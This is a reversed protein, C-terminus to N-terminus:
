AYEVYFCNNLISFRMHDKQRYFSLLIFFRFLFSFIGKLFSLFFVHEIRNQLSKSWLLSRTAKMSFFLLDSLMNMPTRFDILHFPFVGVQLGVGLFFYLFVKKMKFLCFKRRVFIKLKWGIIFFRFVKILLNM